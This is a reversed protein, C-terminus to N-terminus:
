RAERPLLARWLRPPVAPAARKIWWLARAERMPLAYLSGTEVARLCSRVVDGVKCFSRDYLKRATERLSPDAYRAHNFLGTKFFTPCAVSVEVGTGACEAHLSESLAIVAAKSTNYASMKPPSLFGAASAINLIAGRGAAKMMPFFVHCGHIVGWLNTDVVWHWDELSLEDFLGAVAVGANNVLLDLGQWTKQVEQSLAELEEARRVDCVSAHAEPAGAERCAAATARAAELDIDTLWLRAGRRALELSLERGLGSGTGTILSRTSSNIKM